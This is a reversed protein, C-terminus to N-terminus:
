ETSEGDDEEKFYDYELVLLNYKYDNIFKNSLYVIYEPNIDDPIEMIEPLSDYSFTASIFSIDAFRVVNEKDSLADNGFVLEYHLPLNFLNSITPIFDISSIYNDVTGDLILSNSYILLPVNHIDMDSGDEKIDDYDWITSKDIGYAYHDGFIVIVTDELKNHTELEDLLYGIAKDLEINAALYYFIESDLDIGNRIEYDTVEQVNKAAIPHNEDYKFHGSVTLMNVFFKDENIFEPVAAVMMDYDSQWDHAFILSNNKNAVDMGMDEPGFYHNYGLSNVHFDTRPYFYDIYNHFSFTEYGESEFLIPLTAPFTNEAYFDMSLTVNNNPYMSTQVLFETDATSRYYLPSYYNEFYANETKLRYLNPTLEENIAFTDLSEAMIFVLNKDEFIGSYNNVGHSPQIAFYENILIEYETESLPDSRFISFFDRQTYTLLGFKKLADQSNYMFTYLDMDSYTVMAGSDETHEDITQLGIFFLLSGVILLILPRKLTCYEVNFTIIKYRGLLYLSLVPILYFIHLFRFALLYDGIFSLGTTLDGVVAISYFGEVFSNYIEQNLYLFTVISLLTFLIRKAAKEKFFM